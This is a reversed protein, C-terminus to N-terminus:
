IRRIQLIWRWKGIMVASWCAIVGAEVIAMSVNVHTFRFFGVFTLPFYGYLLFFIGEFV